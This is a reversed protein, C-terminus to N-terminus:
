LLGTQSADRSSSVKLMPGQEDLFLFSDTLPIKWQVGATFSVKWSWGGVAPSTRIPHILPNLVPARQSMVFRKSVSSCTGAHVKSAGPPTWGGHPSAAPTLEADHPLQLVSHQCYAPSFTRIDTCDASPTASPPPCTQSNFGSSQATRTQLAVFGSLGFHGGRKHRAEETGLCRRRERRWERWRRRRRREWRWREINPEASSKLLM